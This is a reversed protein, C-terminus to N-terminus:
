GTNGSQVRRRLNNEDFEVAIVPLIAYSASKDAYSTSGSQM